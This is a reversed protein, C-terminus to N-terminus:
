DKESPNVEKLAVEKGLFDLLNDFGVLQWGKGVKKFRFVESTTKITRPTDTKAAWLKLQCNVVAETSDEVFKINLIEIGLDWFKRNEFGAPPSILTKRNGAKEFISSVQARPDVTKGEISIQTGLIEFVQLTDTKQIAKKFCDLILGIEGEDTLIPFQAKTNVGLFILVLALLWSLKLIRKLM